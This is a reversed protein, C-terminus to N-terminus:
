LLLPARWMLNWMGRADVAAGAPTLPPPGTPTPGITIGDGVGPLTPFYHRGHDRADKRKSSRHRRFM